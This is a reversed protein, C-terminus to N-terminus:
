SPMQEEGVMLNPESEAAAKLEDQYMRAFSQRYWYKQIADLIEKAQEKTYLTNINLDLQCDGDRRLHFELM